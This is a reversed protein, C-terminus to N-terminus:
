VNSKQDPLQWPFLGKCFDGLTILDNVIENEPHPQQDHHWENIKDILSIAKKKTAGIVRNM